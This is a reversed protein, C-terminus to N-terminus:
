EEVARANNQIEALGHGRSAGPLILTGKDPAMRAPLRPNAYGRGLLPRRTEGALRLCMIACSMNRISTIPSCASFFLQFRLRM